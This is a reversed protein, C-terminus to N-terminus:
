LKTYARERQTKTVQAKQAEPGAGQLVPASTPGPSAPGVLTKSVGSSPLESTSAPDWAPVHAERPEVKQSLTVCCMTESTSCLPQFCHVGSGPPSLWLSPITVRFGVLTCELSPSSRNAHSASPCILIHPVEPCPKPKYAKPSCPLSQTEHSLLARLLLARPVGM